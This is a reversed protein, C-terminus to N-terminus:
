KKLLKKLKKFEPVVDKDFKVSIALWRKYADTDRSSLVNSEVRRKYDFLKDFFAETKKRLKKPMSRENQSLLTTFEKMREHISISTQNNHSNKSVYYQKIFLGVDNYLTSLYIYLEKWVAQKWLRHAFYVSVLLIFGGLNISFLPSLFDMTSYGAAILGSGTLVFIPLLFKDM